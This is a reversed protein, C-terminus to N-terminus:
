RAAIGFGTLPIDNVPREAATRTQERELRAYAIHLTRNVAELSQASLSILDDLRDSPTARLEQQLATLENRCQEHQRIVRELAAIRESNRM